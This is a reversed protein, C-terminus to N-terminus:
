IARRMKLDFSYTYENDSNWGTRKPRFNKYNKSLKVEVFAVQDSDVFYKFTRRKPGAFTLFFIELQDIISQKVQKFKLNRSEETYNDSTQYNGNSAESIKNVFKFTRGEYDLGQPPLDFQITVDGAGADYVIKPVSKLSGAM